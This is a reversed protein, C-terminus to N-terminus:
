NEFIFYYELGELLKPEKKETVPQTCQLLENCIIECENSFADNKASVACKMVAKCIIGCENNVADQANKQESHTEM